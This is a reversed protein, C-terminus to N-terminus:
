RIRRGEEEDPRNRRREGDGGGWREGREARQEREPRQRSEGRQENGGGAWPREEREGRGAEPRQEREVRGAEPRQQEREVRGPEPRQERQDPRAERREEPIVWNPRDDRRESRDDRRDGRRDDRRDDRRDFRDERRDDRRDWNRDGRYYREWRTRDRYFSRGRYHNDWYNGFTFSIVPARMRYVADPGSYRRGSEFFALFNSSMWGRLGDFRVDCWARDSLCGYVRVEDGRPVVDVVPYGTSPGARLNVNTTAVGITAALAAAPLSVLGAFTLTGLIIKNM